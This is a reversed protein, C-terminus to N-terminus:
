WTGEAFTEVSQRYSLKTDDPNLTVLFDPPYNTKKDFTEEPWQLLYVTVQWRGPAVRIGAVAATPEGGIYEIGSINAVGHSVFLYPESKTKLWKKEQETLAAPSGKSGVRTEIVPAGDSHVYIPVFEGRQIHAEIAANEVFHKGWNQEGVERCADPSWLGHM